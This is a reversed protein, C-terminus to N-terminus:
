TQLLRQSKLYLLVGLFLASCAAASVILVESFAGPDSRLPVPLNMGFAGAVVGFVGVALTANSIVLDIKILANRQSDLSIEALDETDEVADRLEALRAFSFDVHMYYAELLAEVGEHEEGGADSDVSDSDVSDSSPLDDFPAPGSSSSGGGLSVRPEREISSSSLDPFSVPPKRENVASHEHEGEPEDVPSPVRPPARAAVVDSENAGASSSSRRRRRASSCSRHHHTVHRHGDHSQTQTQEDRERQERLTLCMAMMDGDDALLKSLEERVAGVRRSLSNMSSKARRVRELSKTTVHKALQDLSPYAAEELATTEELLRRCVHFLAAEVVRLEFPLALVKLDAPTQRLGLIDTVTAEPSKEEKEEERKEKAAVNVSNSENDGSSNTTDAPAAKALMKRLSQFFAAAHPDPGGDDQDAMLVVFSTVVVARIHELNIVLARPRIFVSSPYRTPLAPDLIMLDRFPVGLERQMEMKTAELFTSQGDVDLVLWKRQVHYRKEPPLTPDSRERTYIVANPGPKFAPAPKSTPDPVHTPKDVAEATSRRSLWISVLEADSGVSSAGSRGGREERANTLRRSALRAADGRLTTPDGLEGSPTRDLWHSGEGMSGMDDDADDDDDGREDDPTAREHSDEDEDGGLLPEDLTGGARRQLRTTHRAAAPTPNSSHTTTTTTTAPLIRPGPTERAHTDHSAAPSEFSFLATERPGALEFHCFSVRM